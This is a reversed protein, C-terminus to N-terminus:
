KEGKNEEYKFRMTKYGMAEKCVKEKEHISDYYALNGSPKPNGQLNQENHKM